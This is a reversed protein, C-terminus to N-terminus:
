APSVWVEVLVPLSPARGHTAKLDWRVSVVVWLDLAHGPLTLQEGVRPVGSLRMTCVHHGKGGHEYQAFFTIEASM